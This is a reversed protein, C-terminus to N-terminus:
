FPAHGVLDARLQVARLVVSREPSLVRSGGSAV